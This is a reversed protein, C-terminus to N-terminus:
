RPTAAGLSVEVGDAGPLDLAPLGAALLADDGIM